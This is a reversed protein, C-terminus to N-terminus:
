YKRSQSDPCLMFTTPIVAGVAIAVLGLGGVVCGVIIKWKNDDSCSGSKDNVVLLPTFDPDLICQQCQPLTIGIMASSQDSDITTQNILLTQSYTTRGDALAFDLFRGNFQINDKLVRLYQLTGYNDYSFPDIKTEQCDYEISQDNNVTTKMVLRLTAFNSYYHWGNISVALKISNPGISLQQNGFTVTRPQQSFSINVTVSTTNLLSTNAIVLDYVANIVSNTTTINTIWSDTLLEKLIENDLGIEQIAVIEFGFEVGDVEIKTTPSTTNPNFTTNDAFKTLCNDVPNYKDECQCVGNVNCTGHGYCNQTTEECIEKPTKTGGSTSTSTSTTGTPPSNDIFKIIYTTSDFTLGNLDLQASAPGFTTPSSVLQCNMQFQTSESQNFICNMTHNIKITVNALTFPGFDGFLSISRQTTNQDNVIGSNIFPYPKTCNNYYSRQNIYCDCIGQNNCVGNGSCHNTIQNCEDLVTVIVFKSVVWFGNITINATAIRNETIPTQELKCTLVQTLWSVVTCISKSGDPNNFEVSSTVNNPGFDGSFQIISGPAWYSGGSYVYNLSPYISSQKYHSGQNFTIPNQIQLYTNGITLTYNQNPPAPIYYSITMSQTDIISSVSQYSDM